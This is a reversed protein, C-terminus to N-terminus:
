SAAAACAAHDTCWHHGFATVGGPQFAALALGEALANFAKATGGKKASRYLIDDGRSAIVGSLEAARAQREAPTLHRVREIWLPVAAQLSILLVDNSM